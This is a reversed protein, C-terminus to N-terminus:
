LILTGVAVNILNQFILAWVGYGEYAMWIGVVASGITGGITSFFFKKFQMTKSVYAQQVNKVGSVILTLGLARIMPTLSPDEYFAAIFPSFVFVLAYILVSFILNFYFVSSFDVDDADKKQILATGLGSDIFVQLISTIVSILAITGYASPDLLRALVISIIFAVGQAGIRELFRWVFNNFISKNNAM